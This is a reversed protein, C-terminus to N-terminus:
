KSIKKARVPGDSSWHSRIQHQLKSGELQVNWIYLDIDPDGRKWFANSYQVIAFEIEWGAPTKRVSRTPLDAIVKGPVKSPLSLTPEWITAPRQYTTCLAPMIAFEWAEAESDFTLGLEAILAVLAAKSFRRHSGDALEIWLDTGVPDEALNSEDTVEILKFGGKSAAKSSHIIPKPYAQDFDPRAPRDEFPDGPLSASKSPESAKTIPPGADAPPAKTSPM